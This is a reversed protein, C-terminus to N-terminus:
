LTVNDLAVKEDKVWPDLFMEFVSERFNGGNPPVLCEIMPRVEAGILDDMRNLYEFQTQIAEWKLVTRSPIIRGQEIWDLAMLHTFIFELNRGIADFKQERKRCKEKMEAKQHRYVYESCAKELIWGIKNRKYGESIDGVYKQRDETGKLWTGYMSMNNLLEQSPLSAHKGSRLVRSTVSKRTFPM